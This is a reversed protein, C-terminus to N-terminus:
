MNRKRVLAMQQQAIAAKKQWDLRYLPCPKAFLCQHKERHLCYHAGPRDERLHHYICDVLECDVKIPDDMMPNNSM